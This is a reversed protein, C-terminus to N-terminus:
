LMLAANHLNAHQKIKNEEKKGKREYLRSQAHYAHRQLEMLWPEDEGGVYLQRVKAAVDPRLGWFIQGCLHHEYTSATIGM